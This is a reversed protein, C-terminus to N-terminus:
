LAKHGTFTLVCSDGLCVKLLLSALLSAMEPTSGPGYCGVPVSKFGLAFPLGAKYDCYLLQVALVGMYLALYKVEGGPFDLKPYCQTSKDKSSIYVVTVSM